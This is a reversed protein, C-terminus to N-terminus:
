RIAKYEVGNIRISEIGNVANCDFDNLISILQSLESFADKLEEVKEFFSDMRVKLREKIQRDRELEASSDFSISDANM